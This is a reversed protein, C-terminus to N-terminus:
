RKIVFIVVNGNWIKFPIINNEFDRQNKGFLIGRVLHVWHFLEGVSTKNEILIASYQDFWGSTIYCAYL